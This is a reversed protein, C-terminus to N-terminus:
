AIIGSATRTTTRCNSHSVVVILVLINSRSLHLTHQIFTAPLALNLMQNYRHSVPDVIKINAQDKSVYALDNPTLLDFRDLRNIIAELAFEHRAV